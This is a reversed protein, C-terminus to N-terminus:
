SIIADNGGAEGRELGNCTRDGSGRSGKLNMVEM